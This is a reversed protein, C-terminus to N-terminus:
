EKLYSAMETMLHDMQKAYGQYMEKAEKNETQLSFNVLNSQLQKINAAVLLKQKIQPMKITDNFLDVYVNGKSDIQALFVDRFDKAGQKTIEGFLWEKTYGYDTLTKEMLNGDIIVLCPATENEVVMGMDKRTLPQLESKKIVSIQGNKEMTATQVDSLKFVNNQRLLIMMEDVTLTEKKLNKELIKGDKILTTPKGETLARFRSSKLEIKSIIIPLLSWLVMGVLFNSMRIESSFTLEAAISGVSIGVIYEYYTIQTIQKKGMLRALILMLIFGALGRIIVLTLENM